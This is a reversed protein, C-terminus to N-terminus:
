ACFDITKHELFNLSIFSFLQVKSLFNKPLAENKRKLAGGPFFINNSFVLNKLRIAGENLRRGALSIPLM